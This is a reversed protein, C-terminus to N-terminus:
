AQRRGARAMDMKARPLGFVPSSAQPPMIARYFDRPAQIKDAFGNALAEDATFMRGEGFRAAVLDASARNGRGAAVTNIFTQHTAELRPQMNEKAADSLPAYPSFETKYDGSYLETIKVGYDELMKSVDAHMMRVGVSGMEGSPTITIDHAQSGLWLAASAMQGEVITSVPKVKALKALAAGAEACGLVEGGPSNVSIVAHKVSPDNEAAEAADAISRYNSGYWAPGDDSLVGQVPIVALKNEGKGVMHPKSAEWRGAIVGDSLDFLLSVASLAAEPRIAWLSSSSLRTLIALRNDM